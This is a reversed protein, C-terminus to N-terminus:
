ILQSLKWLVDDMAEKAENVIENIQEKTPEHLHIGVLVVVTHGLSLCATTALQAALEAEQHGPIQFIHQGHAENQAYAIAIGGIHAKGGTVFFVTDDGVNTMKIQINKTEYEV